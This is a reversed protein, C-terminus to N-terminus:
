AAALRAELEAKPGSTPLGAEKLAARLQKVNLGSGSGSDAPASAAAPESASQPSAAGARARRRAASESSLRHAM